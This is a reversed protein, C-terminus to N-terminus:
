SPKGQKTCCELLSFPFGKWHNKKSSEKNESKQNKKTWNRTGTNRERILGQLKKRKIKRKM